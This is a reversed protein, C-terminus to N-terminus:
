YGVEIKTVLVRDGAEGPVPLRKGTAPDYMGVEVWYTGPAVSGDVLIRYHDVIIEGPLWGTTPLRGGAPPADKQGWVVESQDLIHVFVVYSTDTEGTSRWYLTLDLEEGPRIRSAALDYGLLEAVEGLHASRNHQINPPVTLRERGQIAVQGLPAIATAPGDLANSVAVQLRYQGAALRGSVTLEREDRVIEGAAWQSTPYTGDVPAGAERQRVQGAEDVLQLEFKYDQGIMERAQWYLTTFLKEGASVEDPRQGYGLLALRDGMPRDLRIPMSLKAPDLSTDRRPIQLPLSRVREGSSRGAPDLSPLAQLTKKNYITIELHYQGPPATAELPVQLWSVITEGPEWEDSLYGGPDRQGWRRGKEDVLRLSFALSAEPRALAKWHLVLHLDEGPQPTNAFGYGLVQVVGGLNASLLHQPKTDPQGPPLRYAVFAAEHEPGYGQGMLSGEPFFREMERPARGAPFVYLAGPQLPLVEYGDFWKLRNFVPGALFAVTPHRYHEASFYIVENAPLTNLYRAAAAVDGEMAYYAQQSKGWDQFYSLYAGVGTWGLWVVAVAPLARQFIHWRRGLGEVLTILGIGPLILAAPGVGSVRMFHPAELTLVGPALMVVLWVLVYAYEPRRVRVAAVVLGLYFLASTVFDFAPRGPLNYKFSWDGHFSFMGATRLASDWLAALTNAGGATFVSSQDFRVFLDEPYRLYHAGLPLFVLCAVAGFVAMGPWHSVLWRRNFVLMVLLFGGVLFPLFRSPIYTYFTLGASLGALGYWRWGKRQFALWLLWATLALMMPVTVSRFALRGTHVQWYSVATLGAGLLAIRSGFAARGFLYTFLVTGMSVVAPVIHVAFITHGLCWVSAAMLYVFLPERAAYARFFIQPQGTELMDTALMAYAAEDYHLGAPLADIRYFRLFAAAGLLM